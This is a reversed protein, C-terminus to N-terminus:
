NNAAVVQLMTKALMAGVQKERYRLSQHIKESAKSYDQQVTIDKSLHLHKQQLTERIVEVDHWYGIAEQLKNYYSLETQGATKADAGSGIWNIAYLWQKIMRRLDHWDERAPQKRILQEIQAHLDVVYQEALIQNTAQVYRGTLEVIEKLSQKFGKASDHFDTVLKELKEEQFYIGKFHVLQNKSLWQQLLQYERIEGAEEFILRLQRTSKKLKQKPYVSRLFKIVARLKKMEVRLDHLSVADGKLEFDHLHNFLHKVRQSFYSQFPMAMATTNPYYWSADFGLINIVCPIFNINYKAVSESHLGCEKWLILPIM